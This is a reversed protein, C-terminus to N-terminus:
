DSATITILFDAGRAFGDIKYHGWGRESMRILQGTRHLETLRSGFDAAAALDRIAEGVGRNEILVLNLPAFSGITPTLAFMPLGLGVAWNTREHSPAVLYDAKPVLKASLKAEERRETFFHMRVSDPLETSALARDLRGGRRVLVDARGGGKVVSNLGTVIKVVHAPPEAGSSLFLGTLPADKSLRTQRNRYDYEARAVLANEICLGTVVVQASEYGADVFRRAVKDTPVLVTGAGTMLAEDSAVLEGHQYVLGPRGRFVGVLIPHAVVLTGFVGARFKRLDRGLITFSLSSGNHNSRRRLRGYLRRGVPGSSGNHYLWRAAKWGILSLGRSQAFVDGVNLLLDSRERDRLQELLGDLYFPHGRGINTYLFDIEGSHKV